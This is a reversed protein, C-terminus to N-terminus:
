MGAFIIEERFASFFHELGSDDFIVTIQGRIPSNQAHFQFMDTKGSNAFRLFVCIIALLAKANTKLIRVRM